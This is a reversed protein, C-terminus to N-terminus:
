SRLVHMEPFRTRANRRTNRLPRVWRDKRKRFRNYYKTYLFNGFVIGVFLGSGVGCFIIIWDIRESPLLSVAESTNSAPPLISAKSDQCEKSLPHGCLRPNGKYSSNDFTDFQKGQPICGELHNMSVNFISLFGLQVLQQPIEGSLENQSLDLSELNKLYGLSPFIHGTFHNNSLNLSEIGQLDQLSLPIEGEFHNCSLDVATFITLIEEYERKVGKYILTMTYPSKTNFSSFSMTTELVFSEGISKMALCTHFFKHHLRGSFGNNSLDIIRLKPFQSCATTSGQIPGHFKNSRLVLVQLKPLIGLWSPFIDDFSNDGLSLVELNTCNTLSRPLQGVFRNESLDISELLSGHRFANMMIGHFNNRRLNLEVLSNSLSGLCSPLTGSMNNSSLDLERLCKLECLWPPIEGTLNNNSVGYLVTTQPPLPLQGQVQNYLIYFGQLRKWPLFHPHQHFGTISNYSLSILQLTEQSNNWIWVPVMGHIKNHGLLLIRLKQQFRLFSPFEKLNCSQLEVDKLEPLTSNSYNKTAVLSIRQFREVTPSSTSSKQLEFILKFNTRAIPKRSPKVNSLKTLNALFPPIEGNINMDAIYLENLTTLKGLWSPLYGKEFKNGTLELINLKSHSILSPVLGTFKNMGLGLYTLQTLNSLSAPIHGSFSCKTLRLIILHNLKSISNPVIGFFGTLGLNVYELLSNNRFEHFSGFLNPNSAVDLIKLKPLQFIPEPFKNRLSCNKLKISRLSSFNTLLHPVSSSIDVGSLHLQKLGTMNQVLDKLGSPSQLKVGQERTRSVSLFPLIRLSLSPHRLFVTNGLKM